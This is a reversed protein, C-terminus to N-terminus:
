EKGLAEDIRSLFMEAVDCAAKIDKLSALGCPSHLYRCPVSVSATKVGGRTLHIRGADNGGATTRKYQVPIGVNKATDYLWSRLKKDVITTRDMFTVVAGEGMSTVYEHEDFGYVDSCTTAELVLAIDPNIRHAAVRAGRLGVEEQTTFCFYTDYKVPKKILELLIACGARDDIAKAKVTDEGLMEFQTDFAIYDGLKVKEEATKKDKAGIDIFIDRVRPVSERESRKQLHIAKMGIVGKVKNKGIVVKKSIIVRTDIGGVTKFEIFGKDTIGSVIFGVEDMHASLMIRKQGDGKKLAILNGITDTIIEDAYLELQSRIFARIEGEDGSVGNLNTLEEILM